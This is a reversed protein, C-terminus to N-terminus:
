LSGFAYRLLSGLGTSAVVPPADKLRKVVVLRTVEGKSVANLFKPYDKFSVCGNSDGRPGLM